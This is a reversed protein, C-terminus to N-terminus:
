TKRKQPNQRNSFFSLVEITNGNIRYYLTNKKAVVVRRVALHLDSSQFLFPNRSLLDITKEIEKALNQLEKKTWNTELYAITDELESLAHDTWLIRFGSTM